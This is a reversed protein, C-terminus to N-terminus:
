NRGEPPRGRSRGQWDSGGAPGHPNNFNNAEAHARDGSEVSWGTALPCKRIEQNRLRRGLKESFDKGGYWSSDWGKIIGLRFAIPNIKQGM